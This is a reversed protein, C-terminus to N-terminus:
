FDEKNISVARKMKDLKQCINEIHWQNELKYRWWLSNWQVGSQNTRRHSVDGSSQTVSM